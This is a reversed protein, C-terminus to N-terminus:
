CFAAVVLDLVPDISLNNTARVRFGVTGAREYNDSMLMYKGHPGTLKRMEPSNPYSTLCFSLCARTVITSHVIATRLLIPLAAVVM